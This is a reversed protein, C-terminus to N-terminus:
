QAMRKFKIDQKLLEEYSGESIVTGNELHYIKECMRVTTLRHAVIIITIKKDLNKVSDMIAQETLNDLASTAEDFVLVQPNHYLARAIGIRQRQGGSIRVGREGIITKYGLPLENLIFNNINSIMSARKLAAQDLHSPDVGLAINAEISDDILFIQQPVYGVLKQWSRINKQDIIKGDIKLSGRHPELLGLILDIVTTKGSGTVGVLGITTKAPILININNLATKISNPYNYYIHDLMINDKFSIKENLVAKKPFSLKVIDYYLINLSPESFRIQAFAAYIQQIAPLLRYGAFAYLAIIPIINLFSYSVNLLYLIIILMGGFAIAELVFRPIREIVQALSQSRAFIEAAESFRKVYVSELNAFKVEKIGGFAENTSIFRNQNAAVREKGISGLFSRLYKYVLSYSCGLVVAVILSLFPDVFLLLAVLLLTVCSQAILDLIPIIVGSTTKNVESLINTGLNSSNKNLFWEYPQHLYGEILRRGITYERMLTFRIQFYTTLAKFALSSTLMLFVLLGLIFFFEQHTQFNGLKYLMSLIQNIEILQPNSLVAIFPLISAVGITDLTATCLMMLLLFILRKKEQKTLLFLIKKLIIM